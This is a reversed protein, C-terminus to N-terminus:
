RLQDLQRDISAAEAQLLGLTQRFLPWLGKGAAIELGRALSAGRMFTMSAMAGKLAHAQAQALATDHTQAAEALRGLREQMDASMADVVERLISDDGGLRSRLREPDFGPDGADAGSAQIRADPGPGAPPPPRTADPAPWSMPPLLEEPADRGNELAEHMAHTLSDPSVPKSVYADMGAALYKERDGALAHATVAVVPTHGGREREIARLRRVAEEGGMVPMQVDMLVLDFPSQEWQQLAEVGNAALTVDCGLDQLVRSTILRNVPHDEALLVRLGSLSRAELLAPMTMVSPDHPAHNFLVSFRFLSGHGPKSAVQLRGGMMEVLRQSIALGLGTGGYQRTTSADAQTFAEFIGQLQAATMGIGSDRVAFFVRLQGPGVGAADTDPWVRV